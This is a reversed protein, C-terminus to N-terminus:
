IGKIQNKLVKSYSQSIIFPEKVGEMYIRHTYNNWKEVKRIYDTNIITSRHIRLFHEKPLKEHWQKIPKRVLYSRSDSTYLRTYDKASQIFVVSRMRVFDSKKGDSLFVKGEYKIGSSENDKVPIPKKKEAPNLNETLIRLVENEIDIKNSSEEKKRLQTDISKLLEERSFPKPIFDDAGLEMGKRYDPRESKATLYIFVPRSKLNLSNMNELVDFGNMEPMLIDCLIVDYNNKKILKLGDSGNSAADVSFGEDTLISITAERIIIDDEIILISKM